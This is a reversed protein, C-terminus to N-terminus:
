RPEQLVCALNLRNPLLTQGQYRYVCVYLSVYMCVGIYIFFPEHIYNRLVIRIRNSKKKGECVLPFLLLWSPDQNIWFDRLKHMGYKLETKRINQRVLICNTAIKQDSIYKTNTNLYELFFTCKKNIKVNKTEIYKTNQFYM